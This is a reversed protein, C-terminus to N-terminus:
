PAKDRVCRVSFGNKKNYNTRRVGARSYYLYRNWAYYNSSESSFWFSANYGMNLFDGNSSYRYGGPLATFGSENTAGTNPSTWHSTGSEKLKGGVDKERYGTSNAGSQSMGLYIELEKWDDDTPVHWGEPAIKRSDDVAFWNYLYGYTDAYSATNNYVCYAGTSLSCWSLSDTVNPIPDGNSYKTVKLNEAMWEQDGIKITKYTNGDIDTVNGYADPDPSKDQSCGTILFAAIIMLLVFAKRM